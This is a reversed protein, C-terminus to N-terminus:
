DGPKHWFMTIWKDAFTMFPWKTKKMFSIAPEYRKREANDLILYGGDDLKDLATKVSKNRGRGDILIIDFKAAMNPLGNKPYKPDYILTVNDMLNHKRLAAETKNLWKETHEFSFVCEARQAFFLTSGGCGTELVRARPTLIGQLFLISENVLWPVSKIQNNEM